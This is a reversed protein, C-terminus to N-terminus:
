CTSGRQERALRVLGLALLGAFALAAPPPEPVPPRSIALTTGPAWAWEAYFSDGRDYTNLSERVGSQIGGYYGLGGESGPPRSWTVTFGLNGQPGFSFADLSCMNTPTADQACRTFDTGKIGLSHILFSTLETASLTGDGNRDTGSFSGNITVSPDFVRATPQGYYVTFGTYTFDWTQASAGVAASALIAGCLLKSLMDIEQV